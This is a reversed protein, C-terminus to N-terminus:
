LFHQSKRKKNKKINIFGIIINKKLLLIIKM